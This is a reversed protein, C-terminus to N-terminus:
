GAFDFSSIIKGDGMDIKVPSLNLLGGTTYNCPQKNNGIEGDGGAFRGICKFNVDDPAAGQGKYQRFDEACQVIGCNPCVFKWQMLDIGFLKKGRNQWEKETIEIIDMDKLLLQSVLWHLPFDSAGSM